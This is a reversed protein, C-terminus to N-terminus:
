ARRRRTWVGLGLVGFGLLLVSAPEPIRGQSGFGYYADYSVISADTLHLITEITISYASDLTMFQSCSGSFGYDSTPTLQGTSCIFTGIGTGFPTNDLDRYVNAEIYSGPGSALSGGISILHAWGSPDGSFDTDTLQIKIDTAASSILLTHLDLEPDTITGLIPQSLGTNQLFTIVGASTLTILSGATSADLDDLAVNDQFLVEFSGDNGYDIQLQLLAYSNPIGVMLTLVLAGFITGLRRMRKNLKMKKDELLAIKRLLQAIATGNTVLQIQQPKQDDPLITNNAGKVSALIGTGISTVRWNNFRINSLSLTIITFLYCPYDNKSTISPPSSNARSM